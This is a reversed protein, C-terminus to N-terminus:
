YTNYGNKSTVILINVVPTHACGNMVYYILTNIM